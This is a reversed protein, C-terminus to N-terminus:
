AGPAQVGDESPKPAPKRAKHWLHPILLRLPLRRYHHRALLLQAALAQMTNRRQDPETPMLTAALAPRVWAARLGALRKAEV